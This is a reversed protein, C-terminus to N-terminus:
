RVNAQQAASSELDKDSVETDVSHVKANKEAEAKELLAQQQMASMMERMRKEEGELQVKMIREAEKDLPKFYEEIAAEQLYFHDFIIALVSIFTQSSDIKIPIEPM